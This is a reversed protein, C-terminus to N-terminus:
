RWDFESVYVSGVMAPSRAAEDDYLGKNPVVINAKYISVKCQLYM